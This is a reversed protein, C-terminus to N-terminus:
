MRSQGLNVEEGALAEGTVSIYLNYICIWFMAAAWIHLIMDNFSEWLVDDRIVSIWQSHLKNGFSYNAEELAASWKM